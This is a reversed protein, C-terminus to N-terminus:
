KLVPSQESLPFVTLLIVGLPNMTAKVPATVAPTLM